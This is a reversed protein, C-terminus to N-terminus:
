QLVISVLLTMRMVAWVGCAILNQSGGLVVDGISAFRQVGELFSTFRPSFCQKGAVLGATRDMQGLLRMIDLHDPPSSQLEHKVRHLETKQDITLDAEFRSVAQALRIEPKLLAANALASAM